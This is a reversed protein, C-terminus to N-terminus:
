QLGVLASDVVSDSDVFGRALHFNVLGGEGCADKANCAWLNSSDLLSDM